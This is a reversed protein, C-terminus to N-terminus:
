IRTGFVINYDISEPSVISQGTNTQGLTLKQLYPTLTTEGLIEVLRQLQKKRSSDTEASSASPCPPRHPEKIDIGNYFTSYSLRVAPTNTSNSLKPTDSSKTRPAHSVTLRYPPTKDGGQKVHGSGPIQPSGKDMVKYPLSAPLKYNCTVVPKQPLPLKVQEPPQRRPSLEVRSSSVARSSNDRRVFRGTLSIEVPKRTKFYRSPSRATECRDETEDAVYDKIDSYTLLKTTDISSPIHPQLYFSSELFQGASEM